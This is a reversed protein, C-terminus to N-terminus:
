LHTGSLTQFCAIDLKEISLKKYKRLTKTILQDFRHKRFNIHDQQFPISSDFMVDLILFFVHCEQLAEHLSVPAGCTYSKLALVRCNLDCTKKRMKSTINSLEM